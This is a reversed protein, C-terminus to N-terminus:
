KALGETCPDAARLIAGPPGLHTGQIPHDTPVKSADVRVAATNDPAVFEALEGPREVDIDGLTIGGVDEAKALVGTVV